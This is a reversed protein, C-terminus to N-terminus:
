PGKVRSSVRSKKSKLKLYIHLDSEWKKLSKLAQYQTMDFHLPTISVMGKVVTELDSDRYRRWSIQEGAIWYYKSGRPDTREIVQNRYRRRTLSTFKVGKSSSPPSGPVNGNLLTDTPLGLRFVMDVVRHAVTAAVGYRFNGQGDVSIALSPIGHIAGELAAAVTGSNTVDDGLNLGKNIGSILLDPQQDKLIKGIGLTVCDTPTGNVAFIQKEVYRLRLPKHLTVSRGVANQPREPAVVWVEGLKRMAQVLAKLGLSEIGDDNTVLIKM